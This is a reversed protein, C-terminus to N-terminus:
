QHETLQEELLSSIQAVPLPKHYLFGQYCHCGLQKLTQREAETEVGEAIVMLDLRDATAVIVEVIAEAESGPKLGSVFSRDIKLIDLPLYRLYKLSSYGTGFDDIAFSIGRQKLIKMKRSAIEFNNLLMNETIELEVLTGPIHHRDLLAFLRDVFDVQMFQLPSINIAMRRFSSPLGNSRWRNLQQLANDLVWFGIEVIQGSDEAIQIFQGPQIMGKDPSRWRLLVEVGIIKNKGCVQPQYWLEFENNELAQYLGKELELREQASSQMEPNFFQFGNRGLAKARYLATDAQRLIDMAPSNTTPFMAIGISTTCYLLHHDIEVPVSMQDLVKNALHAAAEASSESDNGTEPLLIVFEDGGFRACTATDPLLSKLRLAIIKLLEDGISHGLSDNITKFRDLDLYLVAGFRQHVTHLELASSLRDIFLRRNALGTLADYFALEHIREEAAKRVSIDRALILIYQQDELYLRIGRAEIPFRRGDAAIQVDEFTSPQHDDITSFLSQLQEKSYEQSFASLPQNLLATKGCVLTDLAQHNIEVITTDPQCLFMADGANEMLSRAFNESRSLESIIANLQNTMNQRDQWLQDFNRVLDGIEDNGTYPIPQDTKGEGLHAMWNAIDMIPKSLYRYFLILFVLALLVNYLLGLLLGAMARRTFHTATYQTDQHIILHAANQKSGEVKLNIIFESDLKFLLASVATALSNDQVPARESSALTDGFDDILAAEYIAPHSILTETISQALQDNLNYVATTATDQYLSLYREIELNAAVREQRLDFNIQFTTSILGLLVSILLVSRAQKFAIKHRFSFGM